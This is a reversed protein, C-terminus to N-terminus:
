FGKDHGDGHCDYCHDEIIPVVSSQYSEVVAQPSKPTDAQSATALALAIALPAGHIARKHLIM